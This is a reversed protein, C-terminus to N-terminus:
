DLIRVILPAEARGRLVRRLAAGRFLTSVTPDIEEEVWGTVEVIEGGTLAALQYRTPVNGSPLLDLGEIPLSGSVFALDQLPRDLYLHEVAILAPERHRDELFFPEAKEIEPGQGGRTFRARFAIVEDGSPTQVARITRARGRLTVAGAQPAQIRRLRLLALPAWPLSGVLRVAGGFALCAFGLALVPAGIQPIFLLPFGAAGLLGGVKFAGRGFRRLAESVRLLARESAPRFRLDLEARSIRTLAQGAPLRM